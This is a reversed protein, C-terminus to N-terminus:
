KTASATTRPIPVFCPRPRLKDPRRPSDAFLGTGSVGARSVYSIFVVLILAATWKRTSNSTSRARAKGTRPLSGMIQQMAELLAPRQAEWAGRSSPPDALRLSSFTPM